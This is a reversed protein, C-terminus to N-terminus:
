PSLGILTHAGIAALYDYIWLSSEGDDGGKEVVRGTVITYPIGNRDQYVLGDPFLPMTPFERGGMPRVRIRVYQIESEPDNDTAPEIVVQNGSGMGGSAELRWAM